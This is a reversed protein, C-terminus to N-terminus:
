KGQLLALLLFRETLRDIVEKFEMLYAGEKDEKKFKDIYQEELSFIDNLLDITKMSKKEDIMAQLDTLFAAGMNAMTAEFSEKPM